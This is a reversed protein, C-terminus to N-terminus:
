EFAKSHTNTQCSCKVSSTLPYLPVQAECMLREAYHQTTIATVETHKKQVGFRLCSHRKCFPKVTQITQWSCSRQSMKDWKTCNGNSHLPGITSYERWKEKNSVTKMAQHNWKNFVRTMGSYWWSLYVLGFESSKFSFCLLHWDSRNYNTKSNGFIYSHIVYLFWNLWNNQNRISM